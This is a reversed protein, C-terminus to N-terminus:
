WLDVLMTLLDEVQDIYQWMRRQFEQFMINHEVSLRHLNTLRYHGCFIRAPRSSPYHYNDDRHNQTEERHFAPGIARGM